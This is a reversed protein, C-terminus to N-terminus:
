RSSTCTSTSEHLLALTVERPDSTELRRALITLLNVPIPPHTLMYSLVSVLEDLGSGELGELDRYVVFGRGGLGLFRLLPGDREVRVGKPLPDSVHTRVQADYAARLESVDPM